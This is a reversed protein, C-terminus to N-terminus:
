PEIALWTPGVGSLPLTVSHTAGTALDVVSVRHQIPHAALAHAGDPTVVAQLVWAGDPLLYRRAPTAPASVQFRFLSDPLSGAVLVEDTGPIPVLGYPINHIRAQGSVVPAAPNSVDVLETTGGLSSTIAVLATGPVFAVGSPDPGTALVPSLSGAPDATRFVQLGTDVALAGLLGAPDLAIQEPRPGAPVEALVARAALDVVAISSGPAAATGYEAVYARSGDPSIAMGMPASTIPLEALVARDVLDVVLLASGAPVAPAGVLGGGMGEYFGPGVAVLATRGDPSLEVEIPGPPHASLDITAVTAEAASCGPDLLRELGLVTLSRGLWDATVVWRSAAAPATCVRPAPADLGGDPPADLVGADTGASGGCGVLLAASVAFRWLLM